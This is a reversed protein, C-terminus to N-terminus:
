AVSHPADLRAAVALAAAAFALALAFGGGGMLFRSWIMWNDVRHVNADQEFSNWLEAIVTSPVDILVLLLLLPACLALRVLLERAGRAPWGLALILLVCSYELVGGLTCDVQAYGPPVGDSGFPHLTQGAVVVPHALNASFSLTAAPGAEAVRADLILFSDDLVGITARLAPILPAIIRRELGHAAWLVVVTVCLFRWALSLPTPWIGHGFPLARSNM